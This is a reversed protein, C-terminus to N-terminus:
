FPLPFPIFYCFVGLALVVLVALILAFPLIKLCFMPTVDGDDFTERWARKVYAKANNLTRLNNM